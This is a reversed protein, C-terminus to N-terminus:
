FLPHPGSHFQPSLFYDVGENTQANTVVLDFDTLKGLKKQSIVAKKFEGLSIFGGEFNVTAYDRSSKFKYHM